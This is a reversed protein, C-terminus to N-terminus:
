RFLSKMFDKPRTRPLKAKRQNVINAVVDSFDFLVEHCFFRPRGRIEGAPEPQYGAEILTQRLTEVDAVNLCFHQGSSRRTDSEAFVHLETEGGTKFWVLDLHAITNPVPKETLGVLEGYFQRAQTASSVGPPRPISVHQLMAQM